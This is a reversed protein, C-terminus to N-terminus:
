STLWLLPGIIKVSGRLPWAIASTTCHVPAQGAGAICKQLIVLPVAKTLYDAVQEETPIYTVRIKEEQVKEHVFHMHLATHKTRSHLVSNHSLAIAATNDVGMQIPVPTPVQLEQYLDLLWLAEKTGMTLAAYEAECSSLATFSQKKCTWSIAAGGSLFISGSTSRRTTPCGAWDSDTFGQVGSETSAKYHLAMDPTGKLYRMTKFAAKLHRGTAFATAQALQSVAYALDPRTCTAAFMLTGVLSQYLKHDIPSLREIGEYPPQPGAEFGDVDLPPIHPVEESNLARFDGSLPVLCPNADELGYKGIM